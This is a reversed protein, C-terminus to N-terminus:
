PQRARPPVGGQRIQRAAGTRRDRGAPVRHLLTRAPQGVCAVPQLVARGAHYAVPYLGYHLLPLGREGAAELTHLVPLHFIGLPRFVDAVVMDWLHAQPGAQRKLFSDMAAALVFTHTDNYRLVEGPGWPYKGYSFAVDLKEQATRARSHWQSM